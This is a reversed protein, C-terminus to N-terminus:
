ILLSGDTGITVPSTFQVTDSAIVKSANWTNDKFMFRSHPRNDNLVAFFVEGDQSIAGGTGFYGPGDPYKIWAPSESKWPKSLDLAFFQGTLTIREISGGYIFFKTGHKAYAM